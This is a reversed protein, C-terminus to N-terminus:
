GLKAEMYAQTTDTVIPLAAQDLHETSMANLVRGCVNIVDAPNGYTAEWIYMLSESSFIPTSRGAVTCRFHITSVTDELDLDALTYRYAQEAAEPVRGLTVALNSRGFIFVPTLEHAIAHLQALAERTLEDQTDVIVVTVRGNASQTKVHTSLEDWQGEVGKRRNLGLADSIAALVAYETDIPLNHLYALSYEDPQCLYYSEIRRAVVSKGVGAHGDVVALGTAREVIGFLREVLPGHQSTPCLFRPDPIPNFPDESFGLSRLYLTRAPYRPLAM